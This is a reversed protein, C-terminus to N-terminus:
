PHNMMTIPHGVADEAVRAGRDVLSALAVARLDVEVEEDPGKSFVAPDDRRSGAAVEIVQLHGGELGM